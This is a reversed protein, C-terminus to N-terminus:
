KKELRYYMKVSERLVSDIDDALDKFFLVGKKDNYKLSSYDHIKLNDPSPYRLEQYIKEADLKNDALFRQLLEPMFNRNTYKNFFCNLIKQEPYKAKFRDCLSHINHEKKVKNEVPDILIFGKILLEIGHLLNFLLPIIISFDSWRTKKEYEDKELVFDSIILWSNGQSVTERAVNEVLTLYQNSFTLFSLALNDRNNNM